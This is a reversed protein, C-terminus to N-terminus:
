CLSMHLIGSLIIANLMVDSLIIGNLMIVSLMIVSLMIVSLMVVSLMVIFHPVRCSVKSLTVIFHMMRVTTITFATTSLTTAGSKHRDREEIQGFFFNPSVTKGDPHGSSQVFIAWSKSFTALVTALALIGL